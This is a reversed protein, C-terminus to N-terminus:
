SGIETLEGELIKIQFTGNVSIPSTPALHLRRGIKGRGTATGGDPLHLVLDRAGDSDASRGAINAKIYERHDWLQARQADIGSVYDGDRDWDGFLDFGVSYLTGTRLLPYGRSGDVGLEDVDDGKEDALDWLPAVEVLIWANRPGGSPLAISDIELYEDGLVLPM